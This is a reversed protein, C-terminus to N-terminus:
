GRARMLPPVWGGFVCLLASRCLCVQLCVCVRVRASSDTAEACGGWGGRPCGREEVCKRACVAVFM